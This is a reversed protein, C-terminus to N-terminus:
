EFDFQIYILLKKLRNYEEYAKLKDDLYVKENSYIDEQVNMAEEIEAKNLARKSDLLKQELKLKEKKAKDDEKGEKGQYKEIEANTKEIVDTLKDWEERDKIILKNESGVKGLKDRAAQATALDKKLKQLVNANEDGLTAKKLKEFAKTLEDLSMKKLKDISLSDDIVENTNMYALMTQILDDKETKRLAILNRIGDAQAKLVGLEENKVKNLKDIAFKSLGLTAIATNTNSQILENEKEAIENRKDDLWKTLEEVSQKNNEKLDQFFLLGIRARKGEAVGTMKANISDLANSLFKLTAKWATTNVIGDVFNQWSTTLKNTAAVTTDTEQGTLKYFNRVEETLKPIAESSLVSGAKLMKDLESTTVNLAKAMLPFAAPLREGLQRRLEETSVKGKSMMQELALFVGSMEDTSLALVSGTEAFTEFIHKTQELEFGSMKAAAAFKGFRKSTEILELGYKKSIDLLFGQVEHLNGLNPFIRSLTLNLSEMETKVSLVNKALNAFMQIGGVIGFAGLLNKFGSIAQGLGSKAFNSTAQNAQNVKKSLADYERQAEKTKQSHKGYLIISDQLIKKAQQQKAILNQYAGVVTSISKAELQKERNLARNNVIEESTLTNSKKKANALRNLQDELEKQKKLLKDYEATQQQINTNVDGGKATKIAALNGSITAIQTATNSLLTNIETIEKRVTELAASYNNELGAM